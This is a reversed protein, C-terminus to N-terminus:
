LITVKILASLVSLTAQISVQYALSGYCTVGDGGLGPGCTCNAEGPATPVCSAQLCLCYV